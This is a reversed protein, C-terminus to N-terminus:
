EFTLYEELLPNYKYKSFSKRFEDLNTIRKQDRRLKALADGMLPLFYPHHTIKAIPDSNIKLKVISKKDITMQAAITEYYEAKVIDSLQELQIFGGLKERQRLIRTATAEKVYRLQCLQEMTANNLEITIDPRNANDTKQRKEAGAHEKLIQSISQPTASSLDAIDISGKMVYRNRYSKISDWVFSAIGERALETSDAYYISIKRNRSIEKKAGEDRTYKTHRRPTFDSKRTTFDYVIYDKRPKMRLSDFGYTECLHEWCSFSGGADRYSLIRVIDRNTFGFHSLQSATATNIHITDAAYKWSVVDTEENQKISITMTATFKDYIMVCLFVVMATVLLSYYALNERRRLLM